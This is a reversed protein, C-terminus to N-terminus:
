QKIGLAAMLSNNMSNYQQVAKFKTAIALLSQSTLPQTSAPVKTQQIFTKLGKDVAASDIFLMVNGLLSEMTLAGAKRMNGTDNLFAYMPAYKEQGAVLAPPAMEGFAIIAKKNTAVLLHTNRWSNITNERPSVITHFGTQFDYGPQIMPLIKTAFDASQNLKLDESLNKTNFRRMNEALLNQLKIM